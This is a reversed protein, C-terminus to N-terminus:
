PVAGHSTCTAADHIQHTCTGSVWPQQRDLALFAKLLGVDDQVIVERIRRQQVM